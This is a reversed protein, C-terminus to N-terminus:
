LYHRLCNNFRCPNEKKFEESLKNVNESIQILRFLMSDVLIDNNVFDDKNLNETYKIIFNVDTLMKNYYYNDNKINDM